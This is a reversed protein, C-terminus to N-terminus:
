SGNRNLSHRESVPHAPAHYSDSAAPYQDVEEYDEAVQQARPVRVLFEDYPYSVAVGVLLLLAAVHKM